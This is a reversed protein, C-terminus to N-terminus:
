LRRSSVLLTVDLSFQFRSSCGAGISNISAQFGIQRRILNKNIDQM